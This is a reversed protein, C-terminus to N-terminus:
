FVQHALSLIGFEKRKKEKKAYRTQLTPGRLRLYRPIEDRRM